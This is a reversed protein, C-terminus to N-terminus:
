KAQERPLRRGLTDLMALVVQCQDCDTAPHACPAGDAQLEPCRPNRAFAVVDALLRRVRDRLPSEPMDRLATILRAEEPTLILPTPDNGM